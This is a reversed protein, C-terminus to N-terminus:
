APPHSPHVAPSNSQGWHTSQQASIAQSPFGSGADNETPARWYAPRPARWLWEKGGLSNGMDHMYECLIFPKAPSNELYRRIYAASSRKCVEVCLRNGTERIYPTLDFESPTFRDEAYGVFSGNLWVYCAQEVGQFSVCVRKGRLGPTLDFERAYSGVPCDDWDIQPPRLEACMTPIPASEDLSTSITSLFQWYVYLQM